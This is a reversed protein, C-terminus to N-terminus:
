YRRCGRQSCKMISNVIDPEGIIQLVRYLSMSIRSEVREIFASIRARQRPCGTRLRKADLGEEAAVTLTDGDYMGNRAVIMSIAIRGAESRTAAFQIDVVEGGSTLTLRLDGAGSRVYAPM